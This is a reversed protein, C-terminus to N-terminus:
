EAGGKQKGFVITYSNDNKRIGVNYNNALLVKLQTVVEEETNVVIIQREVM